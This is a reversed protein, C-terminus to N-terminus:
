GPLTQENSPFVHSLVVLGVILLPVAMFAGLPGWLWTWFALALFVLFPSLTLRRGVISPTIFHGEVTTISVFLLPPILASGLTPLTVVGVLFLALVVMAPGIYPIYNLVFALVGFAAPNPFGLVYLLATTVVGLCLNIVTVTTLYAVLNHEIDNWIRVVRLRADRTEFTTILQRRLRNHGILFFLLTGVFILLETVAPTIIGIGQQVIAPLSTEMAVKPSSEGAGEGLSKGLERFIALPRDLWMLKEKITAGLEPAKTLWETLPGITLVFLLYLGGFFLTMIFLSTIFGPIKYAAAHKQLPAFALGILLAALVPMLISRSHYLATIFVVFAIAIVAADRITDWTDDSSPPPDPRDVEVQGAAAQALGSPASVSRALKQAGNKAPLPKPQQNM